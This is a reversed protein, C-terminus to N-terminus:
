QLSQPHTSAQLGNDKYPRNGQHVKRTALPKRSTCTQPCQPTPACALFFIYNIELVFDGDSLKVRKLHCYVPIDRLSSDIQGVRSDQSELVLRYADQNSAPATIGATSDSTFFNQPQHM